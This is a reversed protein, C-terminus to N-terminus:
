QIANALKEQIMNRAVTRDDFDLVKDKVLQYTEHGKGAIVVLDGNEAMNIAYKIAEARDVIELYKDTAVNGMGAVIDSIIDPPEESRPNDSTVISFDSYKGAIAGMIPRKTRDRDGGCGFVTILRKEVLERGTKLINELGDPTHAYDVVVTFDQGVDVQEFRGVVGSTALLVKQIAEVPVGEQLAVSIAALANYVSFTGIMGTKVAFRGGAFDVDFVNEKLTSRIGSAKVDAPSYIGYTIVPAQSASIFAGAAPDDANVVTYCGPANVIMKFFKLKAALYKQMDGHFDLHDQTLNTLIAAKFDLCAVRGLEIAHSSVEMVSYDAGQALCYDLFDEIVVSEPTTNGISRQYDGLSAYLTGIIGALHGSQNLMAQILHTITTKGNTGTVGVLRMQSSPRCFFNSALRAMNLRNEPSVALAVGDPVEIDREALVAVAGNAIAQSVYDHGDTKFGSVCVFIQGPRTKRSDYSIGNIDLEYFSQDLEANIGDLLEKLKM